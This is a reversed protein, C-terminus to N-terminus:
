GIPYRGHFDSDRRATAAHTIDRQAAASDRLAESAARKSISEIEAFLKAIEANVKQMKLQLEQNEIAQQSMERKRRLDLEQLKFQFDQQLKLMQADPKQAQGQQQQNSTRSLAADLAQEIKGETSRGVRHQRIMLMILEKTPVGLEPVASVIPVAQQILNSYTILLENVRKKSEADNMAVTSDTEINILFNRRADSRLVDVIQQFEALSQPTIEDAGSLKMLTIPRFHEAILEGVIQALDRCFRIFMQQRDRLRLTGFHSKAAQETATVQRNVNSSEGRMIDSIGSTEYFGRKAHEKLDILHKLVVVLAELPLFDVVGTLGGKEALRQWNQVKILQNEATSTLLDTLEPISGDVVGRVAITDTVLQIRRDLEEIHEIQDQLIVYDSIPICSTLGVTSLLAPPCPWFRKLGYPDPSVELPGDTYGPSLWIVQREEIDWIEWVEAYQFHENNVDELKEIQDQDASSNWTLNVRDCDINKFRAKLKKKTMRVRRAKWRIEDECRAKNHLFDAFSVVSFRINEDAVRKVKKKYFFGRDDQETDGDYMQGNIDQYQNDETVTLDIREMSESYRPEYIVWMVGRGSLIWELELQKLQPELTEEALFKNTAREQVEAVRRALDASGPQERTVVATPCNNFIAPKLTEVSSWFLPFRSDNLNRVEKDVDSERDETTYVKNTHKARSIFQEHAKQALKIENMWRAFIDRQDTSSDDDYDNRASTSM